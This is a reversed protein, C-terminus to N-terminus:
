LERLTSIFSDVKLVRTNTQNVKFLMKKVMQLRVYDTNRAREEEAEDEADSHTGPAVTVPTESRVEFDDFWAPM